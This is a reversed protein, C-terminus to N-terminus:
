SEDDSELLKRLEELKKQSAKNITRAFALSVEKQEESLEDLKISIKNNTYDISNKLEDTMKEDLSFIAAIKDGYELPIQKKGNEILSLFTISIGLKDALEAFSVKKEYRLRRVLTGFDEM